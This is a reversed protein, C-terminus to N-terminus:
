LLGDCWQESASWYTCCYTFADSNIHGLTWRQNQCANLRNSTWATVSCQVCPDNSLLTNNGVTILSRNNRHSESDKLLSKLSSTIYQQTTSSSFFTSETLTVLNAAGGSKHPRTSSSWRAVKHHSWPKRIKRLDLQQPGHLRHATSHM